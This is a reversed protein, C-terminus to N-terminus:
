RKLKKRFGALGLLGSSLLFMTAPEPVPAVRVSGTELTVLDLSISDGLFDGLTISEGAFSLMSTGEVLGEFSLTALAFSDPQSSLDLLWSLESLNVSGGGIDGWSWDDADPPVGLGSGLVYSQFELITNDYNINFDFTGLDDNELGSIVVDIDISGGTFISVNSPDFSLTIAHTPSGFAAVAAIIILSIFLVKASRDM